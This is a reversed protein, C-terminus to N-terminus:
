ANEDKVLRAEFRKKIAMSFILLSLFGTIAWFLYKASPSLNEGLWSYVITAPLQGLGTAWFFEWFGMNTLGAAYSVIDFPVIPLLRAILVSSKGYREFFRDTTEISKKGILKEVVPRGFAKAIWFCLSAGIMAGTWSYFAGKVWGFIWANAFTIVFAPLPAALAQLVMLAMSMIPAWIGFGKLYTRLGDIDARSLINVAAKVEKSFSPVIVYLGGLILLFITVLAINAQKKTLHVKFKDGRKEM